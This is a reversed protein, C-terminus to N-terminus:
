PLQQSIAEITDLLADQTDNNVPVVGRREYTHLTHVKDRLADLDCENLAAQGSSLCWISDPNAANIIDNWNATVVARFTDSTTLIAVIDTDPLHNLLTNTADTLAQDHPKAPADEITTTGHLLGYNDTIIYTDTDAHQNLQDTFTKVPLFSGRYHDLAQLHDGSTTGSSETLTLAHM